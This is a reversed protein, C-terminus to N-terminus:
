LVEFFTIMCIDIIFLCYVGKFLALVNICSLLYWVTSVVSCCILVRIDYLKRNISISEYKKNKEENGM